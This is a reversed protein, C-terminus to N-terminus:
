HIGVWWVLVTHQLQYPVHPGEASAEWKVASSDIDTDNSAAMAIYQDMVFIM